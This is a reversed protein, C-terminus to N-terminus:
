RGNDGRVRYVITAATERVELDDAQLLDLVSRFVSTVLDDGTSSCKFM